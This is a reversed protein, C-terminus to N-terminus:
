AGRFLVVFHDRDHLCITPMRSCGVKGRNCLNQKHNLCEKVCYLLQSRHMSSKLSGGDIWQMPSKRKSKGDYWSAESLPASPIAPPFAQQVTAPNSTVVPYTHRMLIQQDSLNNLVSATMLGNVYSVPLHAMRSTRRGRVEKWTGEMDPSKTECRLFKHFFRTQPFHRSRQREPRFFNVM